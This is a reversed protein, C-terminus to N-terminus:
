IAAALTVGISRREVQFTTKALIERVRESSTMIQTSRRRGVCWNLAGHARWLYRELDITM